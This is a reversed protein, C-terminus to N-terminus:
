MAGRRALVAGPTKAVIYLDLALSWNEIYMRDIRLAQESDLDSRGSVQWLGTLGGRVEHRPRLFSENAAVQESPLPRPGVLSMDGRIVNWLQPLEDLSSSRLLRGVGTVRPDDKMKFFPRSLDIVKGDLSREPDVVMTRIKYMTFMRGDKTIREQRFLVPGRSTLKVAAAIVGLFPLAVLLFISALAIDLGRKLAGQARTLHVPSFVVSTLGDASGISLRSTYVDSINASLRLQANTRRCAQLIQLVDNGSVATSAMFVCEAHNRRIAEELEDVHGVISLPDAGSTPTSGNSDAILGLPDFWSDPSALRRALEAAEQNAGLVLTRMTLHARQRRISGSVISRASLEFALVLLVLWGLSAEVLSHGWWAGVIVVVLLGVSIASITSRFGEWVSFRSLVNWDYLAFAQFVGLWLLPALALTLLFSRSPTVWGAMLLRAAILAAVLSAADAAAARRIWRVRSFPVSGPVALSDVATQQPAAQPAATRGNPPPM